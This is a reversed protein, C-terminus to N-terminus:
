GSVLHIAAQSPAPPGSCRTRQSPGAGPVVPSGTDHAPGQRDAELVAAQPDASVSAAAAGLVVSACLTRHLTVDGATAEPSDLGDQRRGYAGQDLRHGM